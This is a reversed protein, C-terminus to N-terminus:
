CMRVEAVIYGHVDATEYSCQMEIPKATTGNVEAGRCCQMTGNLTSATTSGKIVHQWEGAFEACAQWRLTRTTLLRPTRTQAFLVCV